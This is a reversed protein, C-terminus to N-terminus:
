EVKICGDKIVIKDGDKLTVWGCATKVEIKSANIGVSATGSTSSRFEISRTSGNIKVEMKHNKSDKNYYKVSFASALGSVLMFAALLVIAKKKM